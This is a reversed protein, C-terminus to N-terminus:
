YLLEALHYVNATGKFEMDLEKLVENVGDKLDQNHKLKHNVEWISKYFGNCILAIDTKMQEALVVNRAAMAYWVNLDISGFAGTAPCCSAGKLPLLEIGLKKSTKIAASEIGPYRNPDICGLFFAYKRTAVM